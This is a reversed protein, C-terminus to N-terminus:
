LVKKGLARAAAKALDRKFNEEGEILPQEVYKPGTPVDHEADMIEHVAAAYFIGVRDVDSDGYVIAAEPHDGGREKWEIRGSQKLAGTKQPVRRQSEKFIEEINNKVAEAAKDGITEEAEKLRRELEALGEWTFGM